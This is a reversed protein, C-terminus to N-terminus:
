KMYNPYRTPKKKIKAMDSVGIEVKMRNLTHGTKKRQSTVTEKMFRSIIRKIHSPIKRKGGPSDARM